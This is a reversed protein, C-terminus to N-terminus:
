RLVASGTARSVLSPAHLSTIPKISSRSILRCGNKLQLIAYLEDPTKSVAYVTMDFDNVLKSIPISQTSRVGGIGALYRRVKAELFDGLMPNQGYVVFMLDSAGKWVSLALYVNPQKFTDAKELNTDNFTAQYSSADFSASKVELYDYGGAECVSSRRADFGHKNTNVHTFHLYTAAISDRVENMFTDTDNKDYKEQIRQIGQFAELSETIFLNDIPQFNGKELLSSM